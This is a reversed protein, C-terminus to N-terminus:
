TLVSFVLSHASCRPSVVSRARKDLCLGAVGLLAHSLGEIPDRGPQAAAAAAAVSMPVLPTEGEGSDALLHAAMRTLWHLEELPGAPDQGAPCL